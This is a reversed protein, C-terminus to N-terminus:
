AASVGNVYTINNYVGNALKGGSLLLTTTNPVGAIDWYHQLLLPSGVPKDIMLDTWLTNPISNQGPSGWGIVSGDNKLALSYDYGPAIAVVGSLAGVPTMIARNNTNRGWGIVSGDSKLALSHDGVGVAIAVVGSLAGDPITTQQSDNDGWGIVRGDNKLALSHRNGAAIAVVGSLAAAPITIPGWSNDGWGIVRGDNKLALSHRNGAAIAVVGSLAAAPITIPGWSNDGWGIVRGDNKLALSYLDGAAIAVVGSLAAAPITAQDFSNNGWGIVRGDNKLALSHVGGAAVDIVGSLAAAPITTVGYGNIGWGIVSGDNKLALSHYKGSEIKPSNTTFSSYSTLMTAVTTDGNPWYGIWNFNNLTAGGIQQKSAFNGTYPSGNRYLIKSAVAGFVRVDSPSGSGPEGNVYYISDFLGTGRDGNVYYISNFLGTGRDGNLYYVNNFVATRRVGNAYYISNFVGNARYGNVYYISNFEGTGIAGNVYYISNFVGNAGDGNVYYISNFLGTGRDGNVYYISNFLGTGRDGNVYYISNFLGTGRDGNLYYVGEYLIQGIFKDGNVYYSNRFAGTGRDGNLYYVNLYINTGRDGNSYYVNNNLGTGREGSVYYVNDFVGTAVVGKYLATTQVRLGSIDLDASEQSEYKTGNIFYINNILGQNLIGNTFAKLGSSPVAASPVLMHSIDITQGNWNVASNTVTLTGRFAVGNRFLRGDVMNNAYLPSLLVGNAYFRDGARDPLLGNAPLGGSLMINTTKPADAFDWYPQLYSGGGTLINTVTADGNPWYGIWLSTIANVTTQRNPLNAPLSSTEEERCIEGTYPVGAKYLINAPSASPQNSNTPYGSAKLGSLYYTSNYLGNGPAGSVYYELNVTRRKRKAKAFPSVEGTFTAIPQGLQYLYVFSNTDQAIALYGDASLTQMEGEIFYGDTYFGDKAPMNISNLTM